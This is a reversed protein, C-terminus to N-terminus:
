FINIYDHSCKLKNLKKGKCNQFYCLILVWLCTSHVTAFCNGFFIECNYCIIIIPSISQDSEYVITVILQVLHRSEKLKFVEDSFFKSSKKNRFLSITTQFFLTIHFVCLAFGSPMITRVVKWCFFPRNKRLLFFSQFWVLNANFFPVNTLFKAKNHSM